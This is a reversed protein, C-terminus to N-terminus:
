EFNEDFPEFGAETLRKGARSRDSKLFTLDDGGLPMVRLGDERIRIDICGVLRGTCCHRLEVKGGHEWARDFEGIAFRISM